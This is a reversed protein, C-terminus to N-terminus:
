GMLLSHYPSMVLLVARVGNENPPINRRQSAAEELREGPSDGTLLRRDTDVETSCGFETFGGFAFHLSPSSRVGELSRHWSCPGQSGVAM